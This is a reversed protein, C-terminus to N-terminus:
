RWVHYGVYRFVGLSAWQTSPFTLDLPAGALRYLIWRTLDLAFSMLANRSRRWSLPLHLVRATFDFEVTTRFAQEEGAM